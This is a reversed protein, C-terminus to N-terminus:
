SIKRMDVEPLHFTEPRIYTPNPASLRSYGYLVHISYNLTMITRTQIVLIYFFHKIWGMELMLNPKPQIPGVGDLILGHTDM